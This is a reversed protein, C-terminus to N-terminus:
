LVAAVWNMIADDFTVTTLTFYFFILIKEKMLLLSSVFVCWKTCSVTAAGSQEQMPRCLLKERWSIGLLHVIKWETSFFLVNIEM